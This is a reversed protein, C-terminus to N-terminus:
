GAVPAPVTAAAKVTSSPVTCCSTATQGARQKYSILTVQEAPITGIIWCPVQGPGTLEDQERRGHQYWNPETQFDDPNYSVLGADFRCTVSSEAEGTGDLFRVSVRSAIRPDGGSAHHLQVVCDAYYPADQM